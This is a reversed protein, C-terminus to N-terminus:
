VKDAHVQTVKCLGKKLKSVLTCLVLACSTMNEKVTDM